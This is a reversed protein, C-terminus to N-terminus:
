VHHSFQLNEFRFGRADRVPPGLTPLTGPTAPLQIGPYCLGQHLPHLTLAGGWPPGPSGWLLPELPLLVPEPLSCCPHECRVLCRAGQLKASVCTM